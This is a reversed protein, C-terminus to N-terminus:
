AKTVPQRLITRLKDQAVKRFDSLYIEHHRQVMRLGNSPIFDNHMAQLVPGEDEFPGVHLTQVCTGEDLVDLRVLALSEPAKKAAVKSRATEVTEGTIWDPTMIMVTWKWANRDRATTFAAMDDAWWLGELPPVVYDKNLEIKSMFKLTYAMPYLSQIAAQFDPSSDPDGQGDIMLYQTPPLEVVSFKNRKAAYGPMTKKFDTKM